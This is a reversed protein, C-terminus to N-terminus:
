FVGESQKRMWHFHRSHCYGGHIQKCEETWDPAAVYQEATRRDGQRREGSGRREDEWRRGRIWTAPYPVYQGNDKTWDLRQKQWALSQLIQELLEPSPDLETWAKLADLRADKRPYDAWFLNFDNRTVIPKRSAM